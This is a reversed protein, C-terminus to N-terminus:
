DKVKRLFFGGARGVIVHNGNELKYPGKGFSELMAELKDSQKQKAAEWREMRAGTDAMLRELVAVAKIEAKSPEGKSKGAKAKKAAKAQPSKKIPKKKIAPKKIKGKPRRLKM